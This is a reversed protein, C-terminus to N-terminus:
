LLVIQNRKLGQIKLLEVMDEAGVLAAIVVKGSYSKIAELPMVNFKHFKKDGLRDYFAKIKVPAHLSLIYLVEAIDSTGYVAFEKTDNSAFKKLCKDSREIIYNNYQSMNKFFDYTKSIKGILDKLSKSQRSFKTAKMTFQNILMKFFVTILQFSFIPHKSFNGLNWLSKLKTGERLKEVSWDKIDKEPIAQLLLPEYIIDDQKLRLINIAPNEILPMVRGTRVADLATTSMNRGDHPGM